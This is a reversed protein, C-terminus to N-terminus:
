QFALGFKKYTKTSKYAPEMIDPTNQTNTRGGRGGGGGMRMGMGMGGMGVGPSFGGGGARGGGGHNGSSQGAPRKMATTEFCISLARGKDARTLESKFYFSKFPVVAEWVMEDDADIGLRVVIGCTDKEMIPFQLNCSKFGQLSYENAEPLAKRVRDELEMRRKQERDMTGSVQQAHASSPRQGEQKSNDTSTPIPYNIGTIEDKEGKKDIWVTLGERLIKLQTAPDGTEVTIYLNDKDNSVAYGLMAKDDYEPYPSPWDKNSGDITIPEAQWPCSPM